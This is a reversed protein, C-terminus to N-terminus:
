SSTWPSVDLPGGSVAPASACTAAGATGAGGLPGMLSRAAAHSPTVVTLVRRLQAFQRANFAASEGAPVVLLVRGDILQVGVARERGAWDSCSVV